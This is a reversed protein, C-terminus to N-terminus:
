DPKKAKKYYEAFMDDTELSGSINRTLTVRMIAFDIGSSKAANWDIDDDQYVSVDVGDVIISNKFRKDHNRYDSRDEYAASVDFGASSIVIIILLLVTIAKKM